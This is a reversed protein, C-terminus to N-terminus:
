WPQSTAAEAQCVSSIEAAEVPMALRQNMLDNRTLPSANIAAAAM